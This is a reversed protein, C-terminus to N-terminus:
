APDDLPERPQGVFAPIHSFGVAVSAHLRHFGDYLAYGEPTMTLVIPDMTAGSAIGHLVKLMRPEEFGDAGHKQRKHPHPPEIADVRVLLVGDALAFNYFRASRQFGILVSWWDDAITFPHGNPFQFGPM